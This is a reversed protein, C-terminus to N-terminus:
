NRGVLLAYGNGHRAKVPLEQGPARQAVKGRLRSVLAELRHDAHTGPVKGLARLLDDRGVSRGIGEFLCALFLLENHTLDVEVGTPAVLVSRDGELRWGGPLPKAPRMRRHLAILAAALEVLEVPKVFYLDAGDQFGRVRDQLEGKATLMALGLHPHSRRLRQAISRGDEGPLSIDLLVIDPAVKPLVADLAPGDSVVTVTLGHQPLGQELILRFVPDDECALVRPLGEDPVWGGAGQNGIDAQGVAVGSRRPERDVARRPGKMESRKGSGM